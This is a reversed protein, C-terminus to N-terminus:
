QKAKRPNVKGQHIMRYTLADKFHLRIIRNKLFTLFGGQSARQGDAYVTVKPYYIVEYGRELSKHCYGPDAMFVFYAESLGKLQQWLSRRTVWFSSQIWDVPQVQSYDLHTMEDYAVRSRIFPLHRLWTRRSIQLGLHPFARVTMTIKGDTENIQKPGLVGIKPHREMEDILIQLTDVEPWVIDPNVLVLYDGKAQKAALNNAKSYGTNETNVIVRVHPLAELTKLLAANAEHCSNDVIIIEFDFNTKQCVITEVNKLVRKAKHYDVIIISAKM